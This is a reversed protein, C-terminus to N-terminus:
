KGASNSTQLIPAHAIRDGAKHPRWSFGLLEYHLKIPKGNVSAAVSVDTPSHISRGDVALTAGPFQRELQTCVLEASPGIDGIEPPDPVCAAHTGFAVPLIALVLTARIM